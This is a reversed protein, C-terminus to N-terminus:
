ALCAIELYANHGRINQTARREIREMRTSRRERMPSLLPTRQYTLTSGREVGMSLLESFRPSAASM